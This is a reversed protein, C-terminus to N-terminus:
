LLAKLGLRGLLHDGLRLTLAVVTLTPNATGATPFVSAGSVFLNRLGFVQNHPDVVAEAAKSGMRCLGAPHARFHESTRASGPELGLARAMEDRLDLGAEQSRRDRGSSQFHFIARRQGNADLANGLRLHNARTPELERQLSWHIEQQSVQLQLHASSLARSRLTHAIDLSRHAGKPLDERRPFHLGNAPHASFYRGLIGSHDGLGTPSEVSHSALLLRASEFVGAAVVYFRARVAEVQGGTAQVMLQDIRDGTRRLDLALRQSLFSAL